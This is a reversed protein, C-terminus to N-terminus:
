RHEIRAEQYMAIGQSSTRYPNFTPDKALLLLHQQECLHQIYLVQFAACRMPPSAGLERCRMAVKSQVGSACRPHTHRM